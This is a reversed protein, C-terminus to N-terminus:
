LEGNAGAKMIELLGDRIKQAQVKLGPDGIMNVLPDMNMSAVWAKGKTDQYLAIRCPMYVVVDPNYDLMKSATLADCFEYITVFRYPKGTMAEVQQYLPKEGVLKINLANARLKLSDIADKISVGDALPFKVVDSGPATGQAMASGVVLASLLWVLARMQTM